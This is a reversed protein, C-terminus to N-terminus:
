KRSIQPRPPDRHARSIQCTQLLSECSMEACVQEIYAMHLATPQHPYAQHAVGGGRESSAVADTLQHAAGEFYNAAPELALVVELPM